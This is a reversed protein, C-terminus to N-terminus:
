FTTCTQTSHIQGTVQKNFIVLSMWFLFQFKLWQGCVDEARMGKEHTREPHQNISKLNHPRRTCGTHLLASRGPGAVVWWGPCSDPSTAAATGASPCLKGSTWIGLAVGASQRITKKRTLLQKSKWTLGGAASLWLREKSSTAGCGTLFMRQFSLAESSQFGSSISCICSIGLSVLLEAPVTPEQAQSTLHHPHLQTEPDAWRLLGTSPKNKSEKLSSTQKAPFSSKEGKFIRGWTLLFCRSKSRFVTSVGTTPTHQSRVPLTLSLTM